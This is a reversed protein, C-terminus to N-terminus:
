LWLLDHPALCAPMLVGDSTKMREALVKNRTTWSVVEHHNIIILLLFFQDGNSQIFWTEFKFTCCQWSTQRDEFVWDSLNFYQDNSSWTLLKQKVIQVWLAEYCHRITLISDFKKLHPDDSTDESVFLLIHHVLIGINESETWSVRCDLHDCDLEGLTRLVIWEWGSDSNQFLETSVLGLNRGFEVGFKLDLVYTGQRISCCHNRLLIPLNCNKVNIDILHVFFSSTSTTWITTGDESWVLWIM